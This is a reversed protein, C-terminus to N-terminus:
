ALPQLVCALAPGSAGRSRLRLGVNRTELAEAPAASEALALWEARNKLAAPRIWELRQDGALVDLHNFPLFFVEDPEDLVKREVAGQGFALLRPRLDSAASVWVDRFAGRPPDPAPLDVAM